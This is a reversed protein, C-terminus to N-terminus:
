WKELVVPKGLGTFKICSHILIKPQVIRANSMGLPVRNMKNFSYASCDRCSAVTHVGDKRYNHLLAVYKGRSAFRCSVAAEQSLQCDGHASPM